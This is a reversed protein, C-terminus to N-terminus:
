FLSLKQLPNATVIHAIQELEVQIRAYPSSLRKRETPRVHIEFAFRYKYSARFRKSREATQVHQRANTLYELPLFRLAGIAREHERILRAYHATRKVPKAGIM